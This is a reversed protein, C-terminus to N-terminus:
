FQHSKVFLESYSSFLALYICLTKILTSHLRIREISHNYQRNGLIINWLEGLLSYCETFSYLIVTIYYSCREKFHFCVFALQFLVTSSSHWAGNIMRQPKM